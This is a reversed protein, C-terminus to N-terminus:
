SWIPACTTPIVFLLMRESKNNKTKKKEQKRLEPGLDPCPNSPESPTMPVSPPVKGKGLSALRSFLSALRFFSKVMRSFISALRFFSKGDQFFSKSALFFSKGACVANRRIIFLLVIGNLVRKPIKNFSSAPSSSGLYLLISSHNWDLQAVQAPEGVGLDLDIWVIGHQWTGSRPCERWRSFWVLSEIVFRKISVPVWKGQIDAHM